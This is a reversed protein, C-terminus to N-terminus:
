QASFLIQEANKAAFAWGIRIIKACQQSESVYFHSDHKKSSIKILELIMKINPSQKM